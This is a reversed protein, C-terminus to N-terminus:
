RRWQSLFYADTLDYLGKTKRVGAFLAKVEDPLAAYMGDKKARGDGTAFKKLATPPIINITIHPYTQIIGCVIVGQLIALNRTANGVAGFGLGEINVVTPLHTLLTANVHNSIELCRAFIDLPNELDKKTNILEYFPTPTDIFVGTSTTSQDIGCYIM